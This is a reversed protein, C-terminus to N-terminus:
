PGIIVITVLVGLAKVSGFNNAADAMGDIGGL